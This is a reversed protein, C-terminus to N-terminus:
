YEFSRIDKFISKIIVKQLVVVEEVKKYVRSPPEKDEILKVEGARMPLPRSWGFHPSFNLFQSSFLLRNKDYLFLQNLLHAPNNLHGTHTPKDTNQRKLNLDMIRKRRFKLNELISDCILKSRGSLESDQAAFSHFAFGPPDKDKPSLLPLVIDTCKAALDKVSDAQIVTCNPLLQRSWASTQLISNRTAQKILIRNLEFM